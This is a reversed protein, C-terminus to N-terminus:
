STLPPWHDLISLLYISTVRADSAGIGKGRVGKKDGIESELFSSVRINHYMGGKKRLKENKFFHPSM